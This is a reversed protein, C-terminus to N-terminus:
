FIVIKTLEMQLLSVLGCPTLADLKLSYVKFM